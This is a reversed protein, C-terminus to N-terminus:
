NKLLHFNYCEKSPYYKDCTSCAIRQTSSTSHDAYEKCYRCQVREQSVGKMASVNTVVRYNSGELLLNIVCSNKNVTKYLIEKLLKM